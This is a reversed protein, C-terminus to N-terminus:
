EPLIAMAEVFRMWDKLTFTKFLWAWAAARALGGRIPIGSKVKAVHTIFKFPQLPEWGDDKRLLVQEGTDRDFDFWQPLRWVLRKPMWDRESTEWDIETVSYGKGIADLVDVLEDTVAEREFFGQVLEADRLDDASDSAPEIVVGIQAVQRKRTNLVGLYHLDREEMEEALEVFDESSGDGPVESERLISALRQPTLRGAPNTTLISRVGTVSPGAHEERLARTDVPDGKYDYLKAM